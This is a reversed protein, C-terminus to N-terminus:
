AARRQYDHHLGNLVPISIVEGVFGATNSPVPAMPIHQNLGQHPRAQNFYVVYQNVQRLLHRESLILLYDLCERRLSGMFRECIANARPAKVPTHIVKIGAGAAVRDFQAGYKHDNDRILFGPGDGFPTAERLQQAVWVENPYRTVGVHVVRRSSLEIIVFVFMDRFWVDRTQVFDCAWIQSAHNRLFTSWTQSRPGAARRGKLYKQISSKAVSLSVKLLEGRIREAGWTINEKAMQRRLAVKDRSLAPRGRRAKDSKRKWVWRFLDRHWRLITEPKVILLANKWNKVRSSLLVLWARDRWTLKPRKVQREIVILQQRLLANELLLDAKSRRADGVAGFLVSKTAPKTWAKLWGIFRHFPGTFIMPLLLLLATIPGKIFPLPFWTIPQM